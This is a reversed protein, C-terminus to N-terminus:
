LETGATVRHGDTECQHVKLSQEKISQIDGASLHASGRCNVMVYDVDGLTLEGWIQGEWYDRPDKTLRNVSRFSFTHADVRRRRLRLDFSDGTTFTARDKVSDKLKFYVDGYDEPLFGEDGKRPRDLFVYAYKPLVAHTAASSREYKRALRFGILENEIKWRYDPSLIGGSSGTQHQNLFGRQVVSPFYAFKLAVVLHTDRAFDYDPNKVLAHGRERLEAFRMVLSRAIAVSSHKSYVEHPVVGDRPLGMIEPIPGIDQDTAWASALVLVFVTLSVLKM